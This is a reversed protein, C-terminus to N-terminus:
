QRVQINGGNLLIQNDSSYVANPEADLNLITSNANWVRAAFKDPGVAPASGPEGADTVDIQFQVAGGLAAGVDYTM